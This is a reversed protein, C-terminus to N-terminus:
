PVGTRDVVCLEGNVDIRAVLGESDIGEPLEASFRMWACDFLQGAWPEGMRVEAREGSERQAFSVPESTLWRTITLPALRVHQASEVRKVLGDIVSSVPVPGSVPSFTM